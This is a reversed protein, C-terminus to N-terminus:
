PNRMVPRTAPATASTAAPAPLTGPQTGGPQTAAADAQAKMNAAVQAFMASLVPDNINIKAKSRLFVLHNNMWQSQKFDAVKKTLDAKVSNFTKTGTQDATIEDLIILVKQKTGNGAPVETEASIDGVKKLYDFVVGKIEDVNKASKPVIWVTPPQLKLESAVQEATKPSGDANRARLAASVQAPSVTPAATSPYAIVHVKRKEGYEVLYADTLEADTVDVNGASMARLGSRTELELRVEIASIGGQQQLVNALINFREDRTFPKGDTNSTPINLGELSKSIEDDLRKEFLPGSLPIGSDQCTSQVLSLDFVRQFVRMGAVQMLIDYFAKNNIAIGNITAIPANPDPMTGAPPMAPSTAPASTGATMTQGLCAGTVASVLIAASTLRRLSFFGTM